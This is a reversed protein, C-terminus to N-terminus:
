ETHPVYTAGRTCGDMRVIFSVRRTFYRGVGRYSLPYLL